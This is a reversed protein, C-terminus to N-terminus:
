EEVWGVVYLLNCTYSTCGQTCLFGTEKLFRTEPYVEYVQFDSYKFTANPKM